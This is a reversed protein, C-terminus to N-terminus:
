RDPQQGDSSGELVAGLQRHVDDYVAAHEDVPRTDLEALREIAADVGTDGTSFADAGDDHYDNV